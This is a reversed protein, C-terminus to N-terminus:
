YQAEFAPQRGQETANLAIARLLDRKDQTRNASSNPLVYRDGSLGLLAKRREIGAELEELKL